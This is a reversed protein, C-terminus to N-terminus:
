SKQETLKGVFDHIFNSGRSVLIGTLISGMFPWSIAMGLMGFLDTETAICTVTGVVLAFLRKWFAAKGNEPAPIWEVVGEVIIAILFLAIFKM